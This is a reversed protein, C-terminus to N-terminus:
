FHQDKLVQYGALNETSYRLIGVTRDPHLSVTKPSM